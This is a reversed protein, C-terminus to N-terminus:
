FNNQWVEIIKVNRSEHKFALTFRNFGIWTILIFFSLKSKSVISHSICVLWWITPKYYEPSSIRYQCTIDGKFPM